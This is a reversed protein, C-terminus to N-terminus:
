LSIGEEGAEDLLFIMLGELGRLILLLFRTEASDFFGGDGEIIEGFRSILGSMLESLKPVSDDSKLRRLVTISSSDGRM